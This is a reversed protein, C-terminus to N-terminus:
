DPCIKQGHRLCHKAKKRERENDNELAVNMNFHVNTFILKEMDGRENVNAITELSKLGLQSNKAILLFLTNVYSALAAAFIDEPCLVRRKRRVINTSQCNCTQKRQNITRM